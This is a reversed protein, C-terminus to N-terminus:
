DLPTNSKILCRENVWKGQWKATTLIEGRCNLFEGAHNRYIIKMEGQQIASVVHERLNEKHKKGLEIGKENNYLDMAVSVSDPLLGEELRRKKLDRYNGKEHANGLRRARREGIGQTLTAMWFAHRFADLKGGNEISDLEGTKKVERTVALVYQTLHKAKRAKFPHMFVWKKGPCSLKRFSHRTQSYLKNNCLLLTFLMCIFIGQVRM